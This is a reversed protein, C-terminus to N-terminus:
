IAGIVIMILNFLRLGSLYTHLNVSRIRKSMKYLTQLLIGETVRNMITRLPNSGTYVYTCYEYDYLPYHTRPGNESFISRRSHDRPM